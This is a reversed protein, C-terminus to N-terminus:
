SNWTLAKLEAPEDSKEALVAATTGPSVMILLHRVLASDSPEEPGSWILSGSVAVPVYWKVTAHPSPVEVM